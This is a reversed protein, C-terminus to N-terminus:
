RGAQEVVWPWVPEEETHLEPHWQVALVKEGPLEAAEVVGDDARGVVVLGEGPRDIAQHHLSNTWVEEGYLQALQSGHDLRVRHRRREAPYGYFSHAEGEDPPLHPVLTGGLAVNLLQLGRCIALIPKGADLFCRILDLEFRDLDPDYSTAGPGPRGGWLTPDVDAGGVLVLGDLREALTAPPAERALLVPAGGAVAVKQQYATLYGDLRLRDMGNPLGAIVSAPLRRGTLGILPPNM